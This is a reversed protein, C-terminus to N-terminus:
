KRYCNFKPKDYTKTRHNYGSCWRIITQKTVGIAEAAARASPYVNGLIFWKKAVRTNEGSQKRTVWKCNDPTYGGENDTRDLVTEAPREGMDELFNDFVLWRDCITIGRGGYNKYAHHNPKTCRVIMARWSNYTPSASRGQGSHGHRVMAASVLERKKCGCSKSNGNRLYERRVFRTTGCICLVELHAGGKKVQVKGTTEWFGYRM